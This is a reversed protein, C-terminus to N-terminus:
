RRAMDRDIEEKIGEFVINALLRNGKPTLHLNDVYFDSRDKEPIKDFMENAPIVKAGNEDGVKDIESYIRNYFPKLKKDLLAGKRADSTDFLNIAQKVIIISINRANATKIMETLNLALGDVISDDEGLQQVQAELSGRYLMGADKKMSVSMKERLSLYFVSHDLLFGNIIALLYRGRGLTAKSYYIDNFFGYIIVMDPSYNIIEAMFMNKMNETKFSPIGCNIVEVHRGQGTQNLLSNLVIPFTNEDTNELGFVTSDGIIAIRYLGGPKSVKFDQGRFGLSNIKYEKHPYDPNFKSYGNYFRRPIHIVGSKKIACLGRLQMKYYETEDMKPVFGYVLWYPSDYKCWYRMRQITEFLTFFIVVSLLCLLINKLMVRKMNSYEIISQGTSM